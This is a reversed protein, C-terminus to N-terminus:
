ELLLSRLRDLTADDVGARDRLYAPVDGYTDRIHDLTAQMVAPDAVLLPQIDQTTIGLVGLPKVAAAGVTEISEYARNSLSYDAIVVEEPVGLLRLLLAVAVGTRDKGATCHLIAPLSEPEALRRLVDGILAANYEVIVEIYLQPMMQAIRDRQFLLANLRDRQTTSRDSKVEAHLYTIGAYQPLNDPAEDVEERSRLDCVFRVGLTHLLRQDDATLTDLSGTRYIMGWRVHRGDTTSYGGIDRANRTGQLPLERPAVKLRRGDNFTVTYVLRQRPDAPPLALRKQPPTGNASWVPISHAGNAESILAPFADIRVPTVDGRWHLVPGGHDGPLLWLDVEPERILTHPPPYTLKPRRTWLLLGGIAAAGTGFFALLLRLMFPM